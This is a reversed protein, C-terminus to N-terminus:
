GTLRPGINHCLNAGQRDAYDSKLAEQQIRKLDSMTPPSYLPPTPTPTPSPSGEQARASALLSWDSLIVLILLTRRVPQNM